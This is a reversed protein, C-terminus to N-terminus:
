SASSGGSNSLGPLAALWAASDSNGLHPVPQLTAFTMEM